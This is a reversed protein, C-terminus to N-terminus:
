IKNKDFIRIKNAPLYGTTQQMGYTAAMAPRFPASKIFSAKARCTRCSQHWGLCLQRQMKKTPPVWSGVLMPLFSWSRTAPTVWNVWSVVFLPVHLFGKHPVEALFAMIQLSMRVLKSTGVETHMFTIPGLFIITSFFFHCTKNSDLPIGNEINLIIHEKLHTNFTHTHIFIYILAHQVFTMRIFSTSDPWQMKCVIYTTTLVCVCLQIEGIGIGHCPPDPFFFRLLLSVRRITVPFVTIFWYLYNPFYSLDEWLNHKWLCQGMAAHLERWQPVAWARCCASALTETQFHARPFASHFSPVGLFQHNRTNM